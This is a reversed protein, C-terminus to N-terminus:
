TEDEDEDDDEDDEDEDIRGVLLQKARTAREAQEDRCEMFFSKLDDDGAREADNVYQECAQVGQLAHYLVSVLAYEHDETEAPEAKTAARPAQARGPVSRNKQTATQPMTLKEKLL